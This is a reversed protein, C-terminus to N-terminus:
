FPIESDLDGDFRSKGALAGASGTSPRGNRAPREGAQGPDADQRGGLLALDGKYRGIVIETSVRKQGDKDQWERTQIQGEVYVESGKRLYREAIEGLKDNFIVVTHWETREQPAGSADKWRESTALRLNVIKQGGTTSRAEPDRGLRGLLIAKNVGSM